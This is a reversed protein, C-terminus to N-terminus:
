EEGGIERAKLLVHARKAKRGEKRLPRSAWNASAETIRAKDLEMNNILINGKLGKLLKIFLLTAKIPYRGSMMGKRHPIEGKFPIARKFKIVEELGSIAKDIHKNKIFRCIYMCHKKSATLAIGRAIAEKEIKLPKKEKAEETKQEPKYEKEIPKEQAENRNEIKPKIDKEM